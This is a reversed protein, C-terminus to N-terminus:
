SVGLLMLLDQRTTSAGGAVLSPLGWARRGWAAEGWAGGPVVTVLTSINPPTRAYPARIYPARGYAM